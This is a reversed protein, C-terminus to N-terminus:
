GADEIPASRRWADHLDRSDDRRHDRYTKRYRGVPILAADMKMVMVGSETDGGHHVHDARCRALAAIHLTCITAALRRPMSFRKRLVHM